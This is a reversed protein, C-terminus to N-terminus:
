LLNATSDLIHVKGTAQMVKLATEGHEPNVASILNKILIVNLGKDLVDIVTAKVCYDTALGYVILTKLSKNNDLYKSFDTELGGDDKIGSYSDFQPRTGKVFFQDILSDPIFFEAGISGQVCHDPWLIQEFSRNKGNPLVHSLTITEFPKKDPYTSAFSTHKKPHWDKTALITFGYGKLKATAETVREIYGSNIETGQVGLSGNYHITFDKQPDVLIVQTSTPSLSSINM